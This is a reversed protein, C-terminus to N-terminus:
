EDEATYDYDSLWRLFKRIFLEPQQPFRAGGAREEALQKFRQLFKPDMMRSLLRSSVNEINHSQNEMNM